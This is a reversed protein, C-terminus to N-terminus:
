GAQKRIVDKISRQEHQEPIFRNEKWEINWQGPKGNRMRLLKVNWKPHGLGPLDEITESPMPSLQWRSVCATTGPNIVNRLIFGTVKSQEVALQLRRSETFSINRVETIVASLSACKLAEDMTWLIDKKKKVDIFIFREPDLGFAKLAPPFVNRSATIWVTAGHNNNNLGSLLGAIFGGSASTNEHTTTIFEHICGTPFSGNPFAAKMFDLGSTDRVGSAPKFGELRLIDAQLESITTKLKLM